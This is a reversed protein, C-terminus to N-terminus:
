SVVERTEDDNAAEDAYMVACTVAGQEPNDASNKPQNHVCELGSSIFIEGVGLSADGSIQNCATSM